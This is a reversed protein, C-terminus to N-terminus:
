EQGTLLGLTYGYGAQIGAVSLNSQGSGAADPAVIVMGRPDQRYLPISMSSYSGVTQSGFQALGSGFQNLPFATSHSVAPSPSPTM